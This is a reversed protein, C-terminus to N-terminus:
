NTIVPVYIKIPPTYPEDNAVTYSILYSNQLLWGMGKVSYADASRLQIISGNEVFGGFRALQGDITGTSHDDYEVVYGVIHDDQTYASFVLDITKQYETSYAHMIGTMGRDDLDFSATIMAGYSPFYDEM